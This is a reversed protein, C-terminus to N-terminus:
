GATGLVRLLKTDKPVRTLDIVVGARVHEHKDGEDVPQIWNVLPTEQPGYGINLNLHALPVSVGQESVVLESGYDAELSFYEIVEYPIEVEAKKCAQYAAFMRDFKKDKPKVGVIEIAYTTSM